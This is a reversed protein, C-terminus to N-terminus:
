QVITIRVEAGGNADEPKTTKFEGKKGKVRRNKGYGGSKHRKRFINLSSWLKVINVTAM